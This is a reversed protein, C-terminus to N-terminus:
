SLFHSVVSCLTSMSVFLRSGGKFVEGLILILTTEVRGKSSFTTTREPAPARAEEPLGGPPGLARGGESTAQPAHRPRTLPRALPRAGVLSLFSRSFIRTHHLQLRVSVSRPRGAATATAKVHTSNEVM